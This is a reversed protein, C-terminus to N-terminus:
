QIRILASNITTESKGYSANKEDKFIFFWNGVLADKESTEKTTIKVMDNLKEWVLVTRDNKYKRFGGGSPLFHYETGNITRWVKGVFFKESSKVSSTDLEMQYNIDMSRLEAEIKSVEALNNLKKYKELMKNLESKYVANVPEVVKKIATEYNDKLRDVDTPLEAFVATFATVLTIIYLKTKMIYSVM